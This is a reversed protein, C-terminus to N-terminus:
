LMYSKNNQSIDYYIYNCLAELFNNILGNDLSYNSMLELSVPMGEFM